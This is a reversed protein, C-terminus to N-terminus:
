ESGIVKGSDADVKLKVSHGESNKAKAKWIGDDFKVDHVDTYGQTALAAHVDHKSLKSVQKDPYVQGTKADIRLKVSKGNGSKADAQWMGDKFKLDNVHTYGQETLRTEVQPQTMAQQAMAVSSAGLAFALALMSIRNKM